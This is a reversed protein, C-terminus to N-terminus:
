GRIALVGNKYKERAETFIYSRWQHACLKGSCHSAWRQEKVDYPEPPVLWLANHEILYEFLSPPPTWVAMRPVEVDVLHYRYRGTPVGTMLLRAGLVGHNCHAITKRFKREIWDEVIREFMVAMVSSNAIMFFDPVGHGFDEFLVRRRIRHCGVKVSCATGTPLSLTGNVPNADCPIYRLTFKSPLKQENYFGICMNALYFLEPNLDSFVFRNNLHVESRLVMVTSFRRGGLQTQEFWLMKRVVVEINSWMLYQCGAVSPEDIHEEMPRTALLAEPFVAQVVAASENSCRIFIAVDYLAENPQIVYKFVEARLRL